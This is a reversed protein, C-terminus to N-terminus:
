KELNWSSSSMNPSSLGDPWRGVEDPETPARLTGSSMFHSSSSVPPPPPSEVGEEFLDRTPLAVGEEGALAGATACGDDGTFLEGAGLGVSLVASKEKPLDAAESVEFTPSPIDALSLRRLLRTLFLGLSTDGSLFASTGLGEAFSSALSQSPRFSESESPSNKIGFCTGERLGPTVSEVGLVGVEERGVLPAALDAEGVLSSPPWFLSSSSSSEKMARALARRMAAMPLWALSLVGAAALAPATSGSVKSHTTAVKTLSWCTDPLTISCTRTTKTVEFITAYEVCQSVGRWGFVKKLHFIVTSLSLKDWQTKLFTTSDVADPGPPFPPPPSSFLVGYHTAWM